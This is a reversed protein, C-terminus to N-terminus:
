EKVKIKLHSNNWRHFFFDQTQILQALFVDPHIRPQPQSSRRKETENKKVNHTKVKGENM